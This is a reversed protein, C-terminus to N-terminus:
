NVRFHCGISEKRRVASDIVLKAITSMNFVEYYESTKRPDKKLDYYIDDVIDQALKLGKDTRVIGVYRDMTDKIEERIKRYNFHCKEAVQKILEGKKHEVTENTIDKAIRRGFVVCELLSNSALRNAGHVGSDCCEGNAYLNKITTKGHLDVSIGGISFHQVPAVPILDRKMDVSHKACKKYITPFRNKLFREDMHRTDLYVHDSWTDYMERYISQSVIDRPALEKLHHYKHMFRKGEVNLLYAGEGRVAESILFKPGKESSFFATPHFQIFEMNNIDAGKDYAMAIGDGTAIPPNTTNKYIEGIGGTALVTYDSYVSVINEQDLIVAGFCTNDEVILEVAMSNEIVDINERKLILNSLSNVLEKGTADGGAHLIRRETHGGEKTLMINGREDRDFNVGYKILKDLNKSSEYVLVKLADIDNLHSGALLTDEIHKQYSEDCPSLEGAIGGQALSSNSTEIQDKSVVLIKKNRSINLATYLGALGSGVIIVDYDNNYVDM